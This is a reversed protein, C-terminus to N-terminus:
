ENLINRFCCEMLRAGHCSLPLRCVGASGPFPFLDLQLKLCQLLFTQSEGYSDYSEGSPGYEYYDDSSCPSLVNPYIYRCASIVVFCELTLLKNSIRKSLWAHSPLEWDNLLEACKCFCSTISEEMWNTEVAALPFAHSTAAKILFWFIPLCAARRKM